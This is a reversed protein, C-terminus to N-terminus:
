ENWDWEYLIYDVLEELISDGKRARISYDMFLKAWHKMTNPKVDYEKVWEKAVRMAEDDDDEPTNFVSSAFANFAEDETPTHLEGSYVRFYPEYEEKKKSTKRPVKPKTEEAEEVAEPYPLTDFQEELHRFAATLATLRAANAPLASSKFNEVISRFHDVRKEIREYVSATFNGARVEFVTKQLKGIEKIAWGIEAYQAASPPHETTTGSRKINGAKLDEVVPQALSFQVDERSTIVDANEALFSTFESMIRAFAYAKSDFPDPSNVSTAAPVNAKSAAAKKSAGTTKAKKITPM